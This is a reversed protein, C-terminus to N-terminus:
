SHMEILDQPKSTSRSRLSVEWICVSILHHFVVKPWAETNGPVLSIQNEQKSARLIHLDVRGSQPALIVNPPILVGCVLKIGGGLSTSNFDRVVLLGTGFTDM